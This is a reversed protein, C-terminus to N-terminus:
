SCLRLVSLPTLCYVLAFCGRNKSFDILVAIRERQFKKFPLRRGQASLIM